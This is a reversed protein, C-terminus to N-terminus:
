WTIQQKEPVTSIHQMKGERYEKYLRKIDNQTDGIFPGQSIIPEGQTQGSYLVFHAGSNGATLKLKSAGDDSPRDLWGVQDQLLFNQEEGIMIGGELVYLFTNFAAPIEQVTELGPQMQIDAVIVPVHNRVPSKLGAFMGSYVKIELGHESLTQVHARPLNQVRPTTWRVKKPLNLWMQLLRMKSKKDITETHVIGSGATMIQFDGEKMRFSSEGFEGELLLSVTEFGAHPHPGGAPEEDQKNLMDDMLFIFPDSESFPKQIVPRAIHGRGMFGQQKAPTQVSILKRQINM